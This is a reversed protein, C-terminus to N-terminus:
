LYVITFTSSGDFVVEDEFTLGQSSAISASVQLTGTVNRVPKPSSGGVEGFSYIWNTAGGGSPIVNPGTVFGMPLGEWSADAGARNFILGVVSGDAVFKGASGSVMYSGIKKGGASLGLGSMRSSEGFVSGSGTPSPIRVGGIADVLSSHRNDIHTFGIMAPATCSITLELDKVKLLTQADAVLDNVSIVGFDVVGGNSLTPTCAAPTITGKVTIEAVSSAFAPSVSLMVATAILAKSINKMRESEM